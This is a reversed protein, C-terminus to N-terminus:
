LGGQTFASPSFKEQLTRRTKRGCKKMYILSARILTEPTVHIRRSSFFIYSGFPFTSFYLDIPRAGEIEFFFQPTTTISAHGRKTSERHITETKKGDIMSEAYDELTENKFTLFGSIALAEDVGLKKYKPGFDMMNVKVSEGVTRM